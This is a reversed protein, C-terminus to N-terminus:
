YDEKEDCCCYCDIPGKEVYFNGESDRKIKNTLDTKSPGCSDDRAIKGKSNCLQSCDLCQSTSQCDDCISHYSCYYGQNASGVLMGGDGCRAKSKFYIVGYPIAFLAVFILLVIGIIIIPGRYSRKAQQNEM